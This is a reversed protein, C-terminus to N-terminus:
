SKPVCGPTGGTTLSMGRVKGVDRWRGAARRSRDSVSRDSEALGLDGSGGAEVSWVAAGHDGGGEGGRGVAVPV